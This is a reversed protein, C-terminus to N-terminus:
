SDENLNKGRSIVHENLQTLASSGTTQFLFPLFGHIMCALGALFMKSGFRFAFRLHMFYSEGVSKPHQTFINM